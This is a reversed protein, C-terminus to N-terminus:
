SLNTEDYLQNQLKNTHSMSFNTYNNEEDLYKLFETNKNRLWYYYDTIEIPPSNNTENKWM